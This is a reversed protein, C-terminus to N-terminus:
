IPQPLPLHRPILSACREPRQQSSSSPSPKALLSHWKPGLHNVVSAWHPVSAYRQFHKRCKLPRPSPLLISAQKAARLFFRSLPPKQQPRTSIFIGPRSGCGAHFPLFFTSGDALIAHKERMAFECQAERPPKAAPSYAAFCASALARIMMQPTAVHWIPMHTGTAPACITQMAPATVVAYSFTTFHCRRRGGPICYDGYRRQGVIRRCRAELRRGEAAHRALFAM